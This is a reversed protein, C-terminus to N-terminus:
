GMCSQAICDLNGAAPVRNESEFGIIRANPQEMTMYKPVKSRAHSHENINLTVWSSLYRM